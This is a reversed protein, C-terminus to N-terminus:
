CSVKAVLFRFQHIIGAIFYLTTGVSSIIGGCVLICYLDDEM